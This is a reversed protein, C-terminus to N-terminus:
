KVKSKILKARDLVNASAPSVGIAAVVASTLQAGTVPQALLATVLAPVPTTTGTLNAYLGANNGVVITLAIRNARVLAAEKPPTGLNTIVTPTISSPITGLIMLATGLDKVATAVVSINATLASTSNILLMMLIRRSRMIAAEATNTILTNLSPTIGSSATSGLGVILRQYGNQGSTAIVALDNVSAALTTLSIAHLLNGQASSNAVYWNLAAIKQAVTTFGTLLPVIDATAANYNDVIPMIASWVTLGSLLGANNAATYSKQRAAGFTSDSFYVIASRKDAIAPMKSLLTTLSTTWNAVTIKLYGEIVPQMNAWATLGTLFPLVSPYIGVRASRLTPDSFYFVASRKDAVLTSGATTTTIQGLMSTLASFSTKLVGYSNLFNLLNSDTGTGWVTLGSTLATVADFILRNSANSAWVLALRKDSPDTMVGFFANLNAWKPSLSALSGYQTLIDFLNGDGSGVGWITLDSSLGVTNVNDFISRNVASQAVWAIGVRKDPSSNLMGVFTALNVWAPNLIRLITYNTLVPGIMTGWQTEATLDKFINLAFAPSFSSQDPASDALYGAILTRKDLGTSALSIINAANVGGRIYNRLAVQINATWDTEQTFDSLIKANFVTAFINQNATDIKYGSLMAMKGAPTNSLTIINAANPGIANFYNWVTKISFTRNAVSQTPTTDILGVISNLQAFSLGSTMLSQVLKQPTDSSSLNAALSTGPDNNMVTAMM